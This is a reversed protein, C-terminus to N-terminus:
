LYGKRGRGNRLRYVIFVLILTIVFIGNRVTRDAWISDYLRSFWGPGDDVEAPDVTAVSDGTSKGPEPTVPEAGDDRLHPFDRPPTQLDNYEPLLERDFAPLEDAMGQAVPIPAPVPSEQAPAVPRPERSAPQEARKRPTERAPPTPNRVPAAAPTPRETAAPSTNSPSPDSEAPSESNGPAPAAPEAPPQTTADPAPKEEGPVAPQPGPEQAFARGSGFGTAISLALGTLILAVANQRGTPQLDTVRIM